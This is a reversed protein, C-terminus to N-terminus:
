RRRAALGSLGYSLCNFGAALLLFRKGTTQAFLTLLLSVSGAAVFLGAVRSAMAPSLARRSTFIARWSFAALILSLVAFTAVAAVSRPQASWLVCAFIALVISAVLSLLAGAASEARSPPRRFPEM